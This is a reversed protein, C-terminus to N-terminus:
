PEHFLSYVVSALKRALLPPVANGVQKYQQTRPGVFFYNDPFTQLRAAERVTLSRCQVPDPHIFYHGDQSIHSVITTSPRHKVQVRFRDAFVLEADGNSLNKHDPLLSKPFDTLLPSRGRAQAFCAAFIYRWLDAVIHSRSSHNCVGRLKPDHFWTRQWIPLARSPVFEGGVGLSPALKGFNMRLALWVDQDIGGDASLKSGRSQKIARAWAEGSDERHSLRSRVKPLNGVVSWLTPKRKSIPLPSPAADLDARVGLLILRHRAQPIGHRESQIIFKAPDLEVGPFLTRNQTYNAVPYLRYAVKPRELHVDQWGSAASPNRLDQLIRNIILGGEVKSSLIGKVNEMVFVPPRHVAIIRLYERYLFHRHDKEYKELDRSMRSRGALSYAQCPPGGILVWNTAEGIAKKIRHDILATPYRDPKGLEAQWAEADARGAEDPYRLFLEELSLRGRLYEYYCDPAGQAFQRFFSRLRLTERAWRDKEISLAIRFKRSGAAKFASFGEGLGGPGAFLDIVPIM